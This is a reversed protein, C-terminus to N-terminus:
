SEWGWENAQEKLKEEVICVEEITFVDEPMRTSKRGNCQRCLLTANSMTLAHGRSLPYWHDIDLARGNDQESKGCIACSSGWFAHVFRSMARDFLETVNRKRGRRKRM